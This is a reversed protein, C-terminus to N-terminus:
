FDKNKYIKLACFVSPIFSLCGLIFPLFAVIWVAVTGLLEIAVAFIVSMLVVGVFMILYAMQAHESGKKLVIPLMANIVLFNIGGYAALVATAKFDLYGALGAVAFGCVLLPIGVCYAVAYRYLVLGRRTIGAALAFTDWNVKEDATLASLPLSVSLFVIGGLIYINKTVISFVILGLFAAFYYVFQNSINKLDKILLGAM